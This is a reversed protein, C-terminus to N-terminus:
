TATQRDGVAEGEGDFLHNLDVLSFSSVIEILLVWNKLGTGCATHSNWM